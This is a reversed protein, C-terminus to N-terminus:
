ISARIGSSRPTPQSWVRLWTCVEPAPVPQSVRGEVDCDGEPVDVHEEVEGLESLHAIIFVHYLGLFLARQQWPRSLPSLSLSLLDRARPM